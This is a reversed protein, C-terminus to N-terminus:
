FHNVANFTGVLFFFLRVQEVIAQWQDLNLAIGKSGPKEEGTSRDEYFERVNILVKGKFTGVTM